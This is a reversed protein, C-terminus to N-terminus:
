KVIQLRQTNSTIGNVAIELPYSGSAILPLRLNVQFLGVSGPSLGAFV